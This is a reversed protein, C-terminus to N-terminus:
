KKKKDSPKAAAVEKEKAPVEVKKEDAKLAKQAEVASKVPQIDKGTNQKMEEKHTLAAKTLEVKEEPKSM